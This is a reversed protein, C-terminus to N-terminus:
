SRVRKSLEALKVSALHNIDYTLQENLNGLPDNSLGALHMVADFGEVDEITVNRVDKITEPIQLDLEGYTCNRFLDSDLGHVEHGHEKLMPVLIAGIYGKHGTVLVKM